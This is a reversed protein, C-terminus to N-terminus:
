NNCNKLNNLNEFLFDANKLADITETCICIHIRMIEQEEETLNEEHKNLWNYIQYLSYYLNQIIKKNDKNM